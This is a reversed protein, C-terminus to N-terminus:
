LFEKLIYHYINNSDHIKEGFRDFRRQLKHIYIGEMYKHYVKPTYTEHMHYSLSDFNKINSIGASKIPLRDYKEQIDPYKNRVIDLLYTILLYYKTYEYNKYYYFFGEMLFQYFKQGPRGGMFPLCYRFERITFVDYDWFELLLPETLLITSDLWIGGYKYLLSARIVDSFTTLTVRGDEVKDLLWQPFDVYNRYNDQTIIILEIEKPLYRKQSNICAKILDPAGEMGQWWCSWAYKKGSYVPENLGTINNPFGDTFGAMMRYVDNYIYKYNVIEHKLQETIRITQFGDEELKKSVEPIYDEALALFVKEKPKLHEKRYVCVPINEVAEPNGAMDTVLIEKIYGSAYGLIKLMEIFLRLTYSAGYVKIGKNESLFELLKDRTDIIYMMNLSEEIFLM